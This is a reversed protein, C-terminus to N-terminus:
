GNKSMATAMKLNHNRQSNSRLTLTSIIVSISCFLSKRKYSEKLQTNVLNTHHIPTLEIEKSRKSTNSTIGMKIWLLKQLIMSTFEQRAMQFCTVWDMNQQIILGNKLMSKLVFSKKIQKKLNHLNHNQPFLTKQALKNPIGQPLDSTTEVQVM